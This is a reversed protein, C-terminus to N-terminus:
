DTLVLQCDRRSNSPLLMIAACNGGGCIPCEADKPPIPEFTKKVIKRVKCCYFMNVKIPENQERHL